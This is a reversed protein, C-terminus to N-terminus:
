KRPRAVLFTSMSRSGCDQKLICNGQVRVGLGKRTKCM